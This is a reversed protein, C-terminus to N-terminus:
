EVLTQHFTALKQVAFSLNVRTSLLYILSRTCYRYNIKFERTLKEYKEDSTYANSKTLIMDYPLTTKYFKKSQLKRLQPLIWISPLLLLLM